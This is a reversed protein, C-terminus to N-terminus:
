PEEFTVKINRTRGTARRAPDFVDNRSGLPYDCVPCRGAQGAMKVNCSLCFDTEDKFADALRERGSTDPSSDTAM